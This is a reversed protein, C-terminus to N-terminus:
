TETACYINDSNIATYGYNKIIRITLPDFGRVGRHYDKDALAATDYLSMGRQCAQRFREINSPLKIPGGMMAYGGDEDEDEREDFLWHHDCHTDTRM